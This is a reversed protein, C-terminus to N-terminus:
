PDVSFFLPKISLQGAAPKETDCPKLEFTTGVAPLGVPTEKFQVPYPTQLLVNGHAGTRPGLPLDLDQLWGWSRSLLLLERDLSRQGNQCPCATKNRRFATRASFSSQVACTLYFNPLFQLRLVQTQVKSSFM